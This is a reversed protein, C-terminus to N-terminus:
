NHHCHHITCSAPLLPSNSSGLHIKPRLGSEPTWSDDLDENDQHEDDLDDDDVDLDDDHQHINMMMTMM